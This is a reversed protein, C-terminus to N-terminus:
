PEPQLHIRGTSDVTVRYGCYTFAVASDPGETSRLFATLADPDVAEYLPPLERVDGDSQEAVRDVIRYALERRESRGTTVM